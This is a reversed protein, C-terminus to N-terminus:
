FQKSSCHALLSSACVQSQLLINFLLLTTCLLWHMPDQAKCISFNLSDFILHLVYWRAIRPSPWIFFSNSAALLKTSHQFSQFILNFKTIMASYPFYHLFIISSFSSKLSIFSSLLQLYHPPRRQTQGKTVVTHQYHVVCTRCTCYYYVSLICGTLASYHFLIVTRPVQM